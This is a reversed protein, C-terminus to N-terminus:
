NEHAIVSFFFWSVHNTSIQEVQGKETARSRAPREAAHVNATFLKCHNEVMTMLKDISM